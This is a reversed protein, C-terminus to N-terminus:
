GVDEVALGDESLEEILMRIESLAAVLHQEVLAAVDDPAAFELGEDGSDNDNLWVIYLDDDRAAIEERTFRRFRGAVDTERRPARGKPDNGYAAAFNALGSIFPDGGDDSEGSARM